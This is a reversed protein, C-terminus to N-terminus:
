NEPNYFLGKKLKHTMENMARQLHDASNLLSQVVPYSEKSKEVERIADLTAQLPTHIEVLSLSLYKEIAKRQNRLMLSREVVNEELMQNYDDLMLKQRELELNQNGLMNIKVELDEKQSKLKMRKQDFQDKHYVFMVSAVISIGLYRLGGTSSSEFDIYQLYYSWLCIMTIQLFLCYLLFFKLWGGYHILGMVMIGALFYYEGTGEAGGLLVWNVCLLGLVLFSFPVSVREYRVNLKLLIIPLLFILLLVMDVVLDANLAKIPLDNYLAILMRFVGLLCTILLIDSEFFRDKTLKM